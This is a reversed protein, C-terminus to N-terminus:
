YERETTKRKEGRMGSARAMYKRSSRRDGEIVM